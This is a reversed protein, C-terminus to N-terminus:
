ARQLLGPPGYVIPIGEQFGRWGTELRVLHLLMPIEKTERSELALSKSRKTKVRWGKRSTKITGRRCNM